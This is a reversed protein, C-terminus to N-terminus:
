LYIHKIAHATTLVWTFFYAITVAIAAGIAGYQPILWWGIATVIILQCLSLLGILRSHGMALLSINSPLNAIFFVCGLTLLYFITVSSQYMSGFLLPIFWSSALAIVIMGLWIFPMILYIKQFLNKLIIKDHQVRSVKPTLVTGFASGLLIFGSAINLGVSYIGTEFPTSLKGLLLIDIRGSIAATIGWLAMWKSFNFIDKIATQPKQGQLFDKPILWWGLPLTALSSITFVAVANFVTVQSAVIVLILAIIRLLANFIILVASKIFQEYAQILGNFFYFILIVASGFLALAFSTLLEPKQYVYLALIQAIFFALILLVGATAMRFIFIAKAFKYAQAPLERGLYVSVFRILASQTGLVLIDSSLNYFALVLSVLGWKEPGLARSALITFILILFGYISHGGITIVTNRATRGLLLQWLQKM